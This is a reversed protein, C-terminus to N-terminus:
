EIKTSDDNPEWWLCGMQDASLSQRKSYWCFRQGRRSSGADLTSTSISKPSRQDFPGRNESTRDRRNHSIRSGPRRRSRSCPTSIGTGGPSWGAVGEPDPEILAAEVTRGNAYLRRELEEETM